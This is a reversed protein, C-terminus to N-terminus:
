THFGISPKPKAAPPELLQKIAQFVIAFQKDYKKEMAEIKRRLDHNTLLMRRLQTFARMIQINVSIARDSNLVGSLMAVGQETFAYPLVVSHKMANFRDCNAVLESKESKTLQFMFDEPFRKINRKVQENLRKTTVEYLLALDRDIMVKKGRIFFIKSTIVEVSVISVM